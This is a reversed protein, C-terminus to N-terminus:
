PLTQYFIGFPESREPIVETAQNFLRFRQLMEVYTTFWYEVTGEDILDKLRDHGIVMYMAITSQFISFM